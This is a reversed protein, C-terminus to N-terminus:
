SAAFRRSSTAGNAGDKATLTTLLGFVRNALLWPRSCGIRQVRARSLRCAAHLPAATDRRAEIANYAGTAVVAAKSTKAAHLPSVRPPGRVTADHSSSIMRGVQPRQSWARSAKQAWPRPYQGGTSGGTRQGSSAEKGSPVSAANLSGAGRAAPDMEADRATGAEAGRSARANGDGTLLFWSANCHGRAANVGRGAVASREPLGNLGRALPLREILHAAGAVSAGDVGATTGGRLQRLAESDTSPPPTPRSYQALQVVKDFLEPTFVAGRLQGRVRAFLDRWESKEADTPDYAAKSAKIRAFSQADLNRISHTLRDASERGRNSLADRLNQALGQMRSSSVVIAGIGFAATMTNINTVRSAWQLQEAALPPAWLM